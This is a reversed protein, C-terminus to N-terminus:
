GDRRSSDSTLQTLDAKIAIASVTVTGDANTSVSATGTVATSRGVADSPAPLSALQERVRYGVYSGSGVTWQAALAAPTSGSTTTPIASAAPLAVKAVPKPSFTTVYVGAFAGIALVVIVVGGIVVNRASFRM